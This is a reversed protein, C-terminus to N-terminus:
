RICVTHYCHGCPLKRCSDPEDVINMESLCISCKAQDLLDERHQVFQEVSDVGYLDKLTPVPFNVLRKLSKLALVFKNFSKATSKCQYYFDILDSVFLRQATRRQAIDITEAHQEKEEPANKDQQPPTRQEEGEIM